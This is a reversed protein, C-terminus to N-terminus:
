ESLLDTGYDLEWNQDLTFANDTFLKQSAREKTRMVFIIALSSPTDLLANRSRHLLLVAM